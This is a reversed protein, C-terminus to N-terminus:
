PNEPNQLNSSIHDALTGVNEMYPTISNEPDYQDLLNITIHFEEEILEAIRLTLDFYGLSDWAKNGNLPTKMSREIQGAEEGGTENIAKYIIEIIRDKSM